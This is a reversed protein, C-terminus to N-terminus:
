SHVSKRAQTLRETKPRCETPKVRPGHPIRPMPAIPLTDGYNWERKGLRDIEAPDFQLKFTTSAKRGMKNEEWSTLSYLAGGPAFILTKAGTSFAQLLAQNANKGEAYADPAAAGSFASGFVSSLPWCRFFGFSTRRGSKDAPSLGRRASQAHPNEAVLRREPRLM